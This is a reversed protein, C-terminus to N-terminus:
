KTLEVYTNLGIQHARTDLGKLPEHQSVGYEVFEVERFGIHRAVLSLEEKSYFHLHAWMEYAEHRGVVACEYDSTPYHKPLVGELGPFSLRLVGGPCLTPPPVLWNLGGM